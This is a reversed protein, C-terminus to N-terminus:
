LKSRITIYRTPRGRYKDLLDSRNKAGLEMAVNKWSVNGEREILTVEWTPAIVKLVGKEAMFDAIKSKMEELEEQKKKLTKELALWDGGVKVLEQSIVESSLTPVIKAVSTRLKESPTSPPPPTDTAVYKDFFEIASNKLLDFLEQDFGCPFEKIERGNEILIFGKHIGSLGEYWTVQCIWEETPEEAYLSSKIEIIYKEGGKGLVIGDIDGIIYEPEGVIHVNTQLVKYTGLNQDVWWNLIADQLVTGRRMQWTVPVQRRGTLIEWTELPTQWKSVGVIAGITSGGIFIERSEM